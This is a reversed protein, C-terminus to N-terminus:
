QRRNIEIKKELEIVYLTLEEVKQLLLANMEALNIGNELVDAESPIDMLHHHEKVYREM